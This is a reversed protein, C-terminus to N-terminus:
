QQLRDNVYWHVYRHKSSLSWRTKRRWHLMLSTRYTNRLRSTWKFSRSIMWYTMHLYKILFSSLYQGLSVVVNMVYLWVERLEGIRRLAKDQSQSLIAQPIPSCFHVPTNCKDQFIVPTFVGPSLYWILFLISAMLVTLLIVQTKEKDRQVTRYATVLQVMFFHLYMFSSSVSLALSLSFLLHSYM